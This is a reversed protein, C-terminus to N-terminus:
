SFGAKGKPFDGEGYFVQVRRNTGLIETSDIVQVQHDVVQYGNAVAAADLITILNAKTTRFQMM